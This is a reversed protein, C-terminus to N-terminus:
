ARKQWVARWCAAWFVCARGQVRGACSRCSAGAWRRVLDAGTVAMFWATGFGYCVLLGALMAARIVPLNGSRKVALATALAIFIYGIM